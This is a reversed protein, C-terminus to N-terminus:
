GRPHSSAYSHRLVSLTGNNNQPESHSRLLYPSACGAWRFTSRSLLTCILRSTSHSKMRKAFCPECPIECPSSTLNVPFKSHQAPFHRRVQKPVGCRPLSLKSTKRFLM